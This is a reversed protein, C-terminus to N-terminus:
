LEIIKTAVAEQFYQDHEVLVMTGDFSQLLEELQMRTYIDIYNLPEDWLYLHASECLSKAILVKKKQGDSYSSMDREFQLRSFDLKRLIAKMLSEDIHNTQIFQSLSGSLFSCDQPVYSIKLQPNILAEGSYSIAEKNLLKLLTSKGSGNKGNLIIHDGQEITFSLASTIPKQDYQLIVERFVALTQTHHKLPQLKLPQTEEQNKLLAAKQEISRQQRAVAAKSRKMMKASKHGIFGRDVPGNQFKSAEIRDSWVATRQASQKLQKIEKKLQTSKAIEYEQQKQFNNMWSSFNGSQVTINSRNLSIVHDICLDLFHRDHSVLLFGKKHRLYAALVARGEADLHNTPEDILLFRQEHLFLAALQIKTKEGGSLTEFSRELITTPLQLASLERKFEWEECLPCLSQLLALTTVTEDAIVYPFYACASSKYINGSYSYEDILIKLLTTKGKGNRGILGIKWDTDLILNLDDFVDEFSSPYAFSLHEIKIMSM